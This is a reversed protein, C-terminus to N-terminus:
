KRLSSVPGLPRHACEPAHQQQQKAARCRGRLCLVLESDEPPSCLRTSSQHPGPELSRGRESHTAPDIFIVRDYRSHAHAAHEILEIVLGDDAGLEVIRVQALLCRERAERDHLRGRICVALDLAGHLDTQADAGHGREQALLADGCTRFVWASVPQSNSM